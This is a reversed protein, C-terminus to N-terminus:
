VGPKRRKPGTTFPKPCEPFTTLKPEPLDSDLGLGAKPLELEAREALPKRWQRTEYELFWGDDIHGHQAFIPIMKRHRCSSREGAPCDCGQASTTYTAEVNFDSDFKTIQWENGKPLSRLIYLETM